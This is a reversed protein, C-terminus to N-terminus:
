GLPHHIAIRNARTASLEAESRIVHQTKPPAATVVAGGTPEAELEQWQRGQLAIVDPVLGGAHPEVLASYGAPLLGGNLSNRINITWTQHFDHFLNASVLTWDHIPM